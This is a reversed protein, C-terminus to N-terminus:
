GLALAKSRLFPEVILRVVECGVGVDVQRADDKELIFHTFARYCIQTEHAGMQLM